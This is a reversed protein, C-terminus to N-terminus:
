SANGKRPRVSVDGSYLARESGGIRVRLAGDGHVGTALARETGDPGHVDIERGDLWDLKRWDDAFAAWGEQVFREHSAFVRAALRGLLVDRDPPTAGGAALSTAGMGLAALREDHVLNLGIGSIVVNGTEGHSRDPRSQMTALLGGLKSGDLVIDNPWKVLVDLGTTERLVSAVAIGTVLSLPALRSPQGAPRSLLSLSVNGPGSVWRRERRARGASQRDAACLARPAEIAALNDELWVNTSPLEDFLHLTVDDLGAQELTRGIVDASPTGGPDGRERRDERRGAADYRGSM